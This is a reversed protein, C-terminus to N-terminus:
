NKALEMTLSFAPERGLGAELDWGLTLRTGQFLREERDHIRAGLHLQLVRVHFPRDSRFELREGARANVITFSSVPGFEATEPSEPSGLVRRDGHIIEVDSPELGVALNLDTCFRLDAAEETQSTVCYQVGLNERRFSFTKEVSFTRAGQSARGALAGAFSATMSPRGGEVLAYNCPHTGAGDPGFAGKPGVQDLFCLLRRRSDGGELANVYNTFSRLSDFEGLAAERMSLYANYEVGQFVIEKEGDFDLDTRIIGPVFSGKHRTTKEAEILSAYASARVPLSLLGGSDSHWYADGCQGKWLEEQASKRRSKDGRLQSVLIRVYHMKSYLAASEPYRLLLRRPSYPLFGAEKAGPRPVPASRESLLRSGSSPFYARGLERATKLWRGPTTTEYTGGDKQIAAFATEFLLDPSELGSAEWLGRAIGGPFMVTLLAAKGHRSRLRTITDHLGRQGQPSPELGFVPFVTITKGQDEAVVPHGPDEDIAEFIEHSLFTFDLGCTQYTSPLSPEWAYEQTWAGRPRRGFHKRIFTTLYELQGVRDSSPIMPLLPAFFAGGILEIQKRNSMEELLMIFEPHNAQLWTLVTGSYHLAASIEPFRYLSSLFPRWCVQYSDEFLTAPSGDPLHNWTGFIVPCQDM